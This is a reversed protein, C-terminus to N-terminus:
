ECITSRRLSELRLDIYYQLSKVLFSLILLLIEFQVPSIDRLPTTETMTSVYTNGVDISIM